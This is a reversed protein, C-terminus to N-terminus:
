IYHWARLVSAQGGDKFIAALFLNEAFIEMFVLIKFFVIHLLTTSLQIEFLKQLFVKGSFNLVLYAVATKVYSTTMKYYKM